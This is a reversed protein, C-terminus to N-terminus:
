LSEIVPSIELQMASRIKEITAFYDSDATCDFLAYGLSNGSHIFPPVFEGQRYNLQYEFLEPVQLRVTADDALADIRGGAESGFIWSGCPRCSQHATSFENPVGLAYRVTMAVLDIGTSRQILLPIGNGGLRPSMEVVVIRSASLIIDFDIPGNQYDLARCTKSVEELIRNQDTESINTPLSHGTPIFGHKHKQTIIASLQSDILFGDGSVDTGDVFAEISVQGSRSFRQAYCFAERCDAPDINELKSVGRSGSTDVPKFMIPTTLAPLELLFADVSASILFAPHDLDHAKQFQRFHAKNSMIEALRLTCNPLHLQEAVFAVTATAIDSAFTVVGDIALENAYELVKERELTSCNIQQHSYRHGINDPINDVTIVYCGLEVAKLIIPLQGSGAGIVLLRKLQLM